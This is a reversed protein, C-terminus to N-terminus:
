IKFLDEKFSRLYQLDFYICPWRKRYVRVGPFPWLAAWVQNGRPIPHTCEAGGLVRLQVPTLLICIGLPVSFKAKTVTM